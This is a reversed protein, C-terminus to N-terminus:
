KGTTTLLFYVTPAIICLLILISLIAFRLMNLDEEAQTGVYIPVDYDDRFKWNSGGDGTKAGM